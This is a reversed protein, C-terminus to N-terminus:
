KKGDLLAHRETLYAIAKGMKAIDDDFHGLALNCPKCLLGRTKGRKHCHDEQPDDMHIGCIACKGHQTILMLQFERPTTGFKRERMYEAQCPKCYSQYYKAGKYFNDLSKRQGCKKCVKEESM